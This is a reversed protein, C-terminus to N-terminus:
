VLRGPLRAVLFLAFGGPRVVVRSRRSSRSVLARSWAWVMLVAASEVSLLLGLSSSRTPSAEGREPDIQEIRSFLPMPACRRCQTDVRRSTGPFPTRERRFRGPRPRSSTSDGLLLVAALAAMTWPRADSGAPRSGTGAGPAHIAAADPLSHLGLLARRKVRGHALLDRDLAEGRANEPKERGLGAALSVIWFPALRPDLVAFLIDGLARWDGSASLVPQHADSRSRVLRALAHPGVMTIELPYLPNGTLVRQSHVLLRRDRAPGARDGPHSRDQDSRSVSQVLIGGIALAILPPIFVVGVAKTGLAM